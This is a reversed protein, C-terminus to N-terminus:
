YKKKMQAAVPKSLKYKEPYPQKAKIKIDQQSNRVARLYDADHDHNDRMIPEFEMNRPPPFLSPNPRRPRNLARARVQLLAEARSM